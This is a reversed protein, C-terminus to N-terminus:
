HSATPPPAVYSLDPRYKITETRSSRIANRGKALIAAGQDKVRRAPQASARAM